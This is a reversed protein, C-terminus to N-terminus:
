SIGLVRNRYFVFLILLGCIVILVSVVVVIESETNKKYQCRSGWYGEYCSCEIQGTTPTWCIGHKCPNPFCDDESILTTLSISTLETETANETVNDSINLSTASLPLYIVFLLSLYM